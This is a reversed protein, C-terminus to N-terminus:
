SFCMNTFYLYSLNDLDYNHTKVQKALDAHDLSFVLHNHVSYNLSKTVALIKTEDTSCIILHTLVLSTKYHFLVFGTM